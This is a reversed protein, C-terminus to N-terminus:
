KLVESIWEKLLALRDDDYYLANRYPPFTCIKEWSVDPDLEQLKSWEIKAKYIFQEKDKELEIHHSLVIEIFNLLHEKKRNEMFILEETEKRADTIRTNLDGYGKAEKIAEYMTKHAQQREKYQLKKYLDFFNAQRDLQEAQANLFMDGAKELYNEPEEQGIKLYHSLVKIVTRHLHPKNEAAKKQAALYGLSDRMHDAM